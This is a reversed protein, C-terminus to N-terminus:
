ELTVCIETLVHEYSQNYLMPDTKEETGANQGIQGIIEARELFFQPHIKLM